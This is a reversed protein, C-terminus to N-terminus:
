GDNSKSSGQNYNKRRYRLFKRFHSTMLATEEDGESSSNFDNAIAKLAISKKEIPMSEKRKQLQVEYSLLNGILEEINMENADNAEEITLTKQDWDPTLSSLIKRVQDAESYTKGLATLSHVIEQFRCYMDSISENENMKFLEFQNVLMAIKTQKVKSTGEHTVQLTRWIEYATKCVSVTNFENRDLSCFLM